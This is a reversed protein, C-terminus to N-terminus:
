TRLNATRFIKELCPIHLGRTCIECFFRCDRRTLLRILNQILFIIEEDIPPFFITDCKVPISSKVKTSLINIEIWYTGSEDELFYRKM